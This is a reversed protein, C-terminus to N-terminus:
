NTECMYVVAFQFLVWSFDLSFPSLDQFGSGWIKMLFSLVGCSLSFFLTLFFLAKESFSCLNSFFLTLITGQFVQFSFLEEFVLGEKERELSQTKICLNYNFALM